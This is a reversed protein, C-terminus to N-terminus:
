GSGLVSSLQACGHYLHWNYKWDMSPFGLGDMGVCATCGRACGGHPVAMSQGCLGEPEWGIGLIHGGAGYAGESSCHHTM